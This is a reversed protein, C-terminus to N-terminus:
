SILLIVEPHDHSILYMNSPMGKVNPTFFLEPFDKYDKYILRIYDAFEPKM